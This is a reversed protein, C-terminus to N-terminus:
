LAGCYWKICCAFFREQSAACGVQACLRGTAKERVFVDITAITQGVQNFTYPNKHDAAMLNQDAWVAIGSGCCLASWVSM